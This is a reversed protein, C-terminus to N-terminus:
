WRNQFKPVEDPRCESCTMWLGDSTLLLSNGDCKSCKVSRREPHDIDICFKDVINDVAAEQRKTLQREQSLLSTIFTTNFNIETHHRAWELIARCKGQTSQSSLM